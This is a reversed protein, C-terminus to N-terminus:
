FEHSNEVIQKFEERSLKKINIDTLRYSGKLKMRLNLIDARSVLTENCVEITENLPKDKSNHTRFFKNAPLARFTDNLQMADALYNVYMEASTELILNDAGFQNKIYCKLYEILSEFSKGYVPVINGNAVNKIKTYDRNFIFAEIFKNQNDHLWYINGLLFKQEM